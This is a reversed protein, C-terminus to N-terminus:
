DEVEIKVAECNDVCKFYDPYNLFDRRLEELYSKRLDYPYGIDCIFDKCIEYAKEASSAVRPDVGEGFNIVWVFKM